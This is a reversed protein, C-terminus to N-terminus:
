LIRPNFSQGSIKHLELLKNLYLIRSSKFLSKTCVKRFYSQLNYHIRTNLEPISNKFQTRTNLELM